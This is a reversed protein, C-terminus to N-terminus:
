DFPTSHEPTLLVYCVVVIYMGYWKYICLIVRTCTHTMCILPKKNSHYRSGLISSRHNSEVYVISVAAKPRPLCDHNTESLKGHHLSFGSLVESDLHKQPLLHKQVSMMSTCSVPPGGPWLVAHRVCCLSQVLCQHVAASPCRMTRDLCRM